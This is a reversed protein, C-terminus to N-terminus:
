IDCAETQIVASWSLYMNPELSGMALLNANPPVHIPIQFTMMLVCPSTRAVTTHGNMSSLSRDIQSKYCLVLRIDIHMKCFETLNQSCYHDSRTILITVQFKLYYHLRTCIQHISVSYPFSFQNLCSIRFRMVPSLM